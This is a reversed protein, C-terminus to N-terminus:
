ARRQRGTRNPKSTSLPRKPFGNVVAEIRAQFDDLDFPKAIFDAAGLRLGLMRDVQGWRGSCIVIPSDTMAKLTMTLVLGDVDPLMLDLIILDPELLPQLACAQSGTAALRVAYGALELAEALIRGMVADDEVVMITARGPVHAM